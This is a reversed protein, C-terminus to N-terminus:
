GCRALATPWPAQDGRIGDAEPTHTDGAAFEQSRRRKGMEIPRGTAGIDRRSNLRVSGPHMLAVRRTEVPKLETRSFMWYDGSPLIRRSSSSAWKELMEWKEKAELNGSAESGPAEGWYIMAGEANQIFLGRRDTAVIALM